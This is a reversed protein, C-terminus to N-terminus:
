HTTQNTEMPQKDYKQALAVGICFAHLNRLSISPTLYVLNSYSTVIDIDRNYDEFVSTFVLQADTMTQKNLSKDFLVEKVEDYLEELQDETMDLEQM